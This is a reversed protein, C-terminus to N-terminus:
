FKFNYSISPIFRLLSIEKFVIKDEQGPNSREVNKTLM